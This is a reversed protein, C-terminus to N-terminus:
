LLDLDCWRQHSRNIGWRGVRGGGSEFLLGVPKASILQIQIGEVIIAGGQILPLVIRPQQILDADRLEHDLAIFFGSLREFLCDATISSEGVGIVIKTYNEVLALPIARGDLLIFLRNLDVVVRRREVAIQSRSIEGFPSEFRRYGSVLV